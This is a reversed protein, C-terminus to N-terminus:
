KIPFDSGEIIEETPIKYLNSQEIPGHNQLYSQVIYYGVCYGIWLPLGKNKDGYLFPHHNNVGKIHLAPVFFQEWMALAEEISYRKTWPSLWKEGYVEQVACEAMGEIVVSDKLQM